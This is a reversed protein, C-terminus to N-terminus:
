TDRHRSNRHYQDKLLGIRLSTKQFVYMDVSFYVINVSLATNFLYIFLYTSMEKRKKSLRKFDSVELRKPDTPLKIVPETSIRDLSTGVLNM